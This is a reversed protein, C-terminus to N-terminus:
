SGYLRQGQMSALVGTGYSLRQYDYAENYDDEVYDYMPVSMGDPLLGAAYADDEDLAYEAPAGAQAHGWRADQAACAGCQCDAYHAAVQGWSARSRARRRSRRRPRGYAAPYPYPNPHYAAADPQTAPLGTQAASATGPQSEQMPVQQEREVQVPAAPALAVQPEGQLEQTPMQSPAVVAPDREPQPAQAHM